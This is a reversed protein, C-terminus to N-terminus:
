RGGLLARLREQAGPSIAAVAERARALESARSMRGGLTEADWVELGDLRLGGRVAARVMSATTGLARAVERDTGVVAVRTMSTASCSAAM